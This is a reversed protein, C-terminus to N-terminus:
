EEYVTEVKTIHKYYYKNLYKKFNELCQKAVQESYIGDVWDEECYLSESFMTWGCRFWMVNHWFLLEKYEVCYKNDYKMIRFKM